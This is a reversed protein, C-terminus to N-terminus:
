YFQYEDIQNLLDTAWILTLHDTFTHLHIICHFVRDIFHFLDFGVQLYEVTYMVLVFM